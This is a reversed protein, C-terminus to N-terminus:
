RTRKSLSHVYGVSLGHSRTEDVDTKYRAYEAQVVGAASVPASVGLSWFTKKLDFAWYDDKERIYNAFLKVVKFDYSGGFAWAKNTGDGVTNVQAADNKLVAQYIGMLYVPGNTYRVGLGFRSGDTNADGVSDRVNDGFGYIARFQFGSWNPSDYAVSNDWRSGGGHQLTRFQGIFYNSINVSSIGNSSTAGLYGAGSPAYQRGATVTGFGGSLGVFSQRKNNFGAGQGEKINYGFEVTFVAKLGNGLAEEGRFGIRNGQLGVDGGDQIGSFKNDDSTAYNYGIDAVGYVTM